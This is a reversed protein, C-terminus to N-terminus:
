EASGTRGSIGRFGTSGTRRLQMLTRLGFALTLYLTFLGLTLAAM